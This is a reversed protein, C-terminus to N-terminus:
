ATRSALGLRAAVLAVADEITNAVTSPAHNSEVLFPAVGTSSELQVEETSLPHKFYWLGDDDAGPHSVQLQQVGIEPHDRRLM